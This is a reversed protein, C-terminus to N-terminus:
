LIRSFMGKEYQDLMVDYANDGTYKPSYKMMELTKDMVDKLYPKFFSM